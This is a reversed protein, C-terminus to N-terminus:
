HPHPQSLPIFLLTLLPYSISLPNTIIPCVLHVPLYGELTTWLMPNSPILRMFGPIIRIKLLSFKIINVILSSRKTSFIVTEIGM